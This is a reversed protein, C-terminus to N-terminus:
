RRKPKEQEEGFFIDRLILGCPAGLIVAMGVAVFIQEGRDTTRHLSGIELLWNLLLATAMGVVAAVGKHRLAERFVGIVAGALFGSVTYAALVSVLSTNKDAFGDAGGVVYVGVAIVDLLAAFIVGFKAGWVAREFVAGSLAHPPEGNM